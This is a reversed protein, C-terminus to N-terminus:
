ASPPIVGASANLSECDFRWIREPSEPHKLQGAYDIVRQVQSATLQSRYARLLRQKLRLAGEIFHHRLRATPLIARLFESRDAPGPEQAAYPLDEYFTVDEGPVGADRLGDLAADRAIRHDIHNGIGLPLYWFQVSSKREAALARVASRIAAHTGVAEPKRDTTFIEKLPYGRLPAEAFGWQRLDAGALRMVLREEADRIEQVKPLLEDRLEFRWWSVRSFVDMVLSGVDGAACMMAGLSLAADDLHPSIIVNQGESGFKSASADFPRTPWLLLVGEGEAEAMLQAFSAGSEAAIDAITRTGDCMSFAKLLEPPHPRLQHDVSALVGERIEYHPLLLPYSDRRTLRKALNRLRRIM